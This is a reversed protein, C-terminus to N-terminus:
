RRRGGSSRPKSTRPASPRSSSTSRRSGGSYSPTSSRPKNYSGGYSSNNSVIGSDRRPEPQRVPQSMRQQQVYHEHDRRAENRRHLFDHWIRMSILNRVYYPLGNYYDYGSEYYNVNHRNGSYSNYIGSIKEEAEKAYVQAIQDRLATLASIDYEVYKKAEGLGDYAELLSNIEEYSSSDIAFDTDPHKRMFEQAKQRDQYEDIMELLNPCASFALKKWAYLEQIENERNRCMTETASLKQSISDKEEQSKKFFRNMEDATNNYKYYFYICGGCAVVAIIGWIWTWVSTKRTDKENGNSNNLSESDDAKDVSSNNSAPQTVSPTTNKKVVDEMYTVVKDFSGVIWEPDSDFSFYCNFVTDGIIEIQDDSVPVLNGFSVCCNYNEDDFIITILVGNQNGQFISEYKEQSIKVTNEATCQGNTVGGVYVAVDYEDIRAAYQEIKSIDQNSLMGYEDTVVTYNAAYATIPMTMVMIMVVALAILMYSVGRNRRRCVKKGLM